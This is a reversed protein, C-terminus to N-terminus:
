SVDESLQQLERQEEELYYDGVDAGNIPIAEYRLLGEVYVQKGVAPPEQQTLIWVQGTGDDIQYLWGNLITLHQKVSGQLPVSREVRQPQRLSDITVTSQPLSIVPVQGGSPSQCASCIAM